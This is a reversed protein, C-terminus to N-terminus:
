ASSATRTPCRSCSPSPSCGAFSPLRPWTNSCSSNIPLSLAARRELKVANLARTYEVAKEFPHLAPDLNHHVRALDQPREKTCSSATRNICKVKM